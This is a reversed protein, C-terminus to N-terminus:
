VQRGAVEGMEVMHCLFSKRFCLDLQRVEVWLGEPADGDVPHLNEMLVMM